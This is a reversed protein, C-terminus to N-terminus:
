EARADVRGEMLLPCEREIVARLRKLARSLRSKVTGPEVNLGQSTEEVSLGLFFRLYIIQQDAAGLQRVAQWLSEAEMQAAALAETSPAAVPNLVPLKHLAAVYRRTSRRRNHALNAAISLLWPRLSRATDFRGLARHAAIFTEQTVDSAEDVDGSLLYALRFVTEQHAQVLREFATEDGARARGVLEADSMVM